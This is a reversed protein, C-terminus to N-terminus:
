AHAARRSPPVAVDHATRWVALLADELDRTFRVPDCLISARVARAIQERRGALAADDRALEVARRVYDGPSWTVLDGAGCNELISYSVRQAHGAGALTVVPVGMWLAECTTTTGHYPFTDLAVDIDNYASLHDRRDAFAGHVVVRDADIGHGAFEALIRSRTITETARRSKIVFRSGPVELLIRSWAAICAPTIKRINNFSGFTTVGLRQQPAGPARAVHEFEGFCLFSAPLRLLRESYLTGGDGDAYPDSLRYDITDLGTTNPYGLYTVQVPALRRSLSGVRSDRTHGALDVLIDIGDRAVRAAFEEDDLASIDIAPASADIATAVADDAGGNAYCTVHFRARDHARLVHRIFFGVSHERFDPSVYAIRCQGGPAGHRTDLDAAAPRPSLSTAWARHCGFVTEPALDPLSNLLILANGRYVTRTAPAQLLEVIRDRTRDIEAWDFADFLTEWANLAADGAAPDRLLALAMAYEEDFRPTRRLCAVLEATTEANAHIALARRYAAIAGEVDNARRLCTGLNHLALWHRADVALARTLTDRAAELKNQDLFNKGLNSWATANAPDIRLAARYHTEAQAWRGSANLVVGLNLHIGAAHPVKRVAKELLTCARRLDGLQYAALGALNLADGHGPHKKLIRRLITDADRPAGANLAAAAQQLLKPVNM